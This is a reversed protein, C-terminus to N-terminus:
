PSRAPTAGQAPPNCLDAIMEDTSKGSMAVYKAYDTVPLKMAKRADLIYTDAVKKDAAGLIDGSRNVIYERNSVLSLHLKELADALQAPTTLEKRRSCILRSREVLQYQIDDVATYMYNLYTRSTSDDFKLASSLLAMGGGSRRRDEAIVTRYFSMTAEVLSIASPDISGDLVREYALPGPAGIEQRPVQAFALGGALTASALLVLHCSKSLSM